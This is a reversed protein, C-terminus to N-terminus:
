VSLRYVTIECRAPEGYQKTVTKRIIQADDRYVAGKMGDLIARSLKDVDPRVIHQKPASPRLGRKGFHGKPRPFVFLAKVALAETWLEAGGMAEVATENVRTKWEKSRAADDVVVARGTNRHIFARKSGAPSPLGHVTFALLRM